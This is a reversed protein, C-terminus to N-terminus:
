ELRRDIVYGLGDDTPQATFGAEDGAHPSLVPKGGPYPARIWLKHRRCLAELEDCFARVWESEGNTWPLEPWLKEAFRRAAAVSLIRAQPPEKERVLDAIEVLKLDYPASMDFPQGLEKESVKGRVDYLDGDPCRVVAHRIMDGQMVGVIDWGLGEHLATAFAYCEGDLYTALCISHIAERSEDGLTKILTTM